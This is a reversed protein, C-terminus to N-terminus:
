NGDEAVVRHAHTRVGTWRRLRALERKEWAEPDHMRGMAGTVQMAAALTEVVHREDGSEILDNCYACVHTGYPCWVFAAPRSWCWHCNPGSTHFARWDRFGGRIVDEDIGTLDDDHTV